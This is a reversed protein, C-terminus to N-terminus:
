WYARLSTASSPLLLAFVAGEESPRLQVDGGNLRALDRAIALGLGTGEAKTTFFPDFIRAQVDAPVGPGDDKVTIWVSPVPGHGEEVQVAVSSRAMDLANEILNVLIQEAHLVDVLVPMVEDEEPLELKVATDRPRLLSTARDVLFGPRHLARNPQKPRSYALSHKILSEVRSVLGPIRVLASELAPEESIAVETLSLIAALPNRVEHAFGAIVSDITKRLQVTALAQSEALYENVSTITAVLGSAAQQSPLPSIKVLLRGGLPTIGQYSGTTERAFTEVDEPAEPPVLEVLRRGELQAPSTVGLVAQATPDATM